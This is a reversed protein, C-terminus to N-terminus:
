AEKLAATVPSFALKRLKRRIAATNPVVPGADGDIIGPEPPVALTEVLAREIPFRILRDNELTRYYGGGTVVAGETYDGAWILPYAYNANKARWFTVYPRSNWEPRLDCILFPGREKSM